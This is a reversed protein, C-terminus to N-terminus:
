FGEHASRDARRLLVLGIDTKVHNELPPDGASLGQRPSLRASSAVEAAHMPPAAARQWIQHTDFSYSSQLIQQDLLVRLLSVQSSKPSTKAFFPLAQDSTVAVTNTHEACTM